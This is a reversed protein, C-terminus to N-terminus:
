FNPQCGPLFVRLFNGSCDGGSVLSSIGFKHGKLESMVAGTSLDWVIVAPKHGSEGIALYKGDHSFVCSSVTKSARFFRVQRNRRASYVVVVSGAAYALEGTTPNVTFCSNHITSLGLVKELTLKNSFGSPPSPSSSSRVADAAKGM